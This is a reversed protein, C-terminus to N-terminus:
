GEAMRRTASSMMDIRPERALDRMAEVVARNEEGCVWSPVQGLAALAEQAVEEPRALGSGDGVHPTNARLGETDTAGPLVALVDVRDRWEWWLSEALVLNFAKTAAYAAVWGTGQLAAISALLVVGGRGRAHMAGGFDRVLRTTALANVAVTRVQEDAARGLFAGAGVAAASCVLLGVEREAAIASLHDLFAASALDGAVPTARVGKEALAACTEGLREAQIDVVVLDLGLDALAECFARGIGQAGGTVLAWPGYRRAFEAGDIAGERPKGECRM